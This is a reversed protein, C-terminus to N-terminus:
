FFYFLFLDMPEFIGVLATMDVNSKFLRRAKFAKWSTVGSHRPFQEAAGTASRFGGIALHLHHRTAAGLRARRRWGPPGARHPVPRLGCCSCVSSTCCAFGMSGFALNPELSRLDLGGGRGADVSDAADADCYCSRLSSLRGPSGPPVPAAAWEAASCVTAASLWGSVAYLLLRFGGILRAVYLRGSWASRM